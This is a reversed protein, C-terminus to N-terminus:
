QPGDGGKSKWERYALLIRFCILILGGFTIAVSMWDSLHVVWWPLTLAGTAIIGDVAMRTDNM